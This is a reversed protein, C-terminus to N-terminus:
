KYTMEAFKKDDILKEKREEKISKPLEVAKETISNIGIRGFYSGFREKFKPM